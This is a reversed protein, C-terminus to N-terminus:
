SKINTKRMSQNIKHKTINDKHHLEATHKASPHLADNTDDDEENYNELFLDDELRYLNKGDFPEVQNGIEKPLKRFKTINGTTSNTNTKNRKTLPKLILQRLSDNLFRGEKKESVGLNRKTFVHKIREWKTQSTLQTTKMEKISSHAPHIQVVKCERSDCLISTDNSPFKTIDLLKSTWSFRTGNSKGLM